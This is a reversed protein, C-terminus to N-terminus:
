NVKLSTTIKVKMGGTQQVTIGNLYNSGSENLNIDNNNGNQRIAGSGDNLYTRHKIKNLDGDQTYEFDNGYGYVGIDMSNSYGNQEASLENEYGEQVLYFQNANGAQLVTSYQPLNGTNKQTIEILNKDGFQKTIATNKVDGDIVDRNVDIEHVYTKSVKYNPDEWNQAQMVMPIIFVVIPLICSLTTKSKMHELTKTNIM